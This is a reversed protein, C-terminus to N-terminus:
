GGAKEIPQCIAPVGVAFHRAPVDELVVAGAGVFCGDGISIGGLLTAGAGVVVRDGITPCATESFRAEGLTVGQLLTCDDGIVSEGGIVIGPSHPLYCGGGIKAQPLIDIACFAISIRRLLAPVLPIGGRKLSHGLRYAMLAQFGSNLFLADILSRAFSWGQIQQYRRFDRALRPCLSM